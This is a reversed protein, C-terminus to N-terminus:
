SFIGSALFSLIEQQLSKTGVTYYTYYIDKYIIVRQQSTLYYNANCTPSNEPMPSYVIKSNEVSAPSQGPM